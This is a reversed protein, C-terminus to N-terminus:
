GHTNKISLLLATAKSYLEEESGNNEVVYDSHSMYFAAEKQANVRKEADERGIGDRMVIRKIRTEKAAVVAVVCDCMKDMKAEILLPADIVATGYGDRRAKELEDKCAIIVYKHTIGNLKKLLLEQKKGGCFVKTALARRDLSGDSRVVDDGFNEALEKTCDSQFATISHYLADADIHVAGHKALAKALSGKGAGSPGTVGIVTM